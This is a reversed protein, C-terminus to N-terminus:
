SFVQKSIGLLGPKGALKALPQGQFDEVSIEKNLDKKLQPCAHLLLHKVSNEFKITKTSHVGAIQTIKKKRLKRDYM